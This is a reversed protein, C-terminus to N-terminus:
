PPSAGAMVRLAVAIRMSEMREHFLVYSELVPLRSQEVASCTAQFISGWQSFPQPTIPEASSPIESISYGLDTLRSWRTVSVLRESCDVLLTAKTMYSPLVRSYTVGAVPDVNPDESLFYADVATRGDLAPKISALDIGVATEGSAELPAFRGIDAVLVPVRPAPMDDQLSLAALLALPAIWM